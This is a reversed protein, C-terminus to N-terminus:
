LTHLRKCAARLRVRVLRALLGESDRRLELLGQVTEHVCQVLSVWVEYTADLAIGALYCLSTSCKPLKM